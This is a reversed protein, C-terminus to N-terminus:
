REIEEREEQYQESETIDTPVPDDTARRCRTPTSRTLASISGAGGRGARRAPRRRPAPPLGGHERRTRTSPRRARSAAPEPLESM